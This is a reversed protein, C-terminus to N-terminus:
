FVKHLSSCPLSIATTNSANRRIFTIAVLIDELYAVAATWLGKGHCTGSNHQTGHAIRFLHTGPPFRQNHCAVQVLSPIKKLTSTTLVSHVVCM